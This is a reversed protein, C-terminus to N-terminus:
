IINNRKKIRLATDLVEPSLYKENVYRDYVPLREKLNYGITQLQNELNTVSPWPLEPNIYDSTLPSIGGFDDAGALTFISILPANLNPPIQISVDDFLMSALITLKMLDTIAVEPYDAMPTNAKPKFNQIIIEQIHGYKEHLKKIAFLTDVWDNHNEGIGVLMGTTFAINEKGADEIFKIRKAPDKTPSDKHAVTKLLDKNTTEIMLGMSANVDALYKLDDRSIIGMNTHPLIEYEKLAMASLHHVYEVMSSFSYEELREEVESIEDASEGFTFLAESCKYTNAHKLITRVEDENMLLNVTEEPSQKFNCYGCSNKCIHTLPLFVNKSYTVEKIRDQNIQKVYDVFTLIDGNLLENADRKTIIDDM